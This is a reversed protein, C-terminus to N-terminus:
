EARSWVTRIARAFEAARERQPPAFHHTGAWCESTAHPLTRVFRKAKVAEVPDGKDGYALYALQRWSRLADISVEDREFAHMFVRLGAPRKAMWPPLEGIPGSGGFFAELMEKDPLRVMARDREFSAIEEPTVDTGGIWAPEVLALSRVRTPAQAALVIAISGGGSYGVVHFRDFGAADAARLIAATETRISWGAPPADSAYLEHDKVIVREDTLEKILAAYSLEGPM